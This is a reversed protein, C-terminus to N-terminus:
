WCFLGSVRCARCFTILLATNSMIPPPINPSIDNFKNFFQQEIISEYSQFNNSSGTSFSAAAPIELASSAASRRPPSDSDWGGGSADEKYDVGGEVTIVKKDFAGSLEYKYTATRLVLACRKPETQRIEFQLQYQNHKSKNEFSQKIEQLTGPLLGSAEEVEAFATDREKKRDKNGSIDEDDFNWKTTWGPHTDLIKGSMKTLKQELIRREVYGWIVKKQRQGLNYENQKNLMQAEVLIDDNIAKDLGPVSQLFLKWNNQQQEETPKNDVISESPSSSTSSYDTYWGCSSWPWPEGPATQESIKEKRYDRMRDVWGSMGRWNVEVHPDPVCGKRTGGLTIPKIPEQIVEVEHDPEVSPRCCCYISSGM